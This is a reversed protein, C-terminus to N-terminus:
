QLGGVARFLSLTFLVTGFICLGCCVVAPLLVAATAKGGSTEHMEMLALISFVMQVVILIGSFLVNMGFLNIQGCIPIIQLLSTAGSVYAISRFTAEFGHRAGDLMTLMLHVVGAIIFLVIIGVLPMLIAVCITQFFGGGGQMLNAFQQQNGGLQPLPAPGIILNAILDYLMQVWGGLTWGIVGFWLPAPVGGTRRMNRFALSPGSFIEKVTEIFSAPSAGDREWPPGNRGGEGLSQPRDGTGGTYGPSAYPNDPDAPAGSGVPPVGTGSQQPPVGTGSQQPPVGTGSQEAPRHREPIKVPQKPVVPGRPAEPALSFEDADPSPVETIEGCQPCKAPQGATEDPTRLLNQCKRCHFEISM